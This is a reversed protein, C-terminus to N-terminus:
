SMSTSGVAAYARDGRRCIVRQVSKWWKVSVVENDYVTAAIQEYEMDGCQYQALWTFHDRTWGDARRVFGAAAAAASRKDIHHDIADSVVSIIRQRFDADEETLAPWDLEVQVRDPPGWDYDEDPFTGAVFPEGPAYHNAQRPDPFLFVFDDFSGGAAIDDQRIHLNFTALEIIWPENLHWKQAWEEVRGLGMAQLDPALEQCVDVAARMFMDRAFRQPESDHQVFSGLRLRVRKDSPPQTAM